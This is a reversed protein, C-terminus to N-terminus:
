SPNGNPPATTPTDDLGANDTSDLQKLADPADVLAQDGNRAALRAVRKAFYYVRKLYEM